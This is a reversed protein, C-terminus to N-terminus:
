SSKVRQQRRASLPNSGIVQRFTRDTAHQSVKCDRCTSPGKSIGAPQNQPIPSHEGLILRERLKGSRATPQRGRRSRDLGACRRSMFKHRWCQQQGAEDHVATMTFRFAKTDDGITLKPVSISRSKSRPM